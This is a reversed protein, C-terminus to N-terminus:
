CMLICTRADVLRLERVASVPAPMGYAINHEISTNFLRPEQAVVATHRRVYEIPLSALDHGDVLIQGSTPRYLGQLLALVTSKGSGSFGVFAAKSGRAIVFSVNDLSLVGPRSPYSFSVNRFEIQPPPLTLCM